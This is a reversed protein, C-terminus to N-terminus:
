LQATLTPHMKRESTTAPTIAQAAGTGAGVKWL